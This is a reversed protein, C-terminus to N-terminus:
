GSLITDILNLTESKEQHILDLTDLGKDTLEYTRRGEEHSGKILGQREMAYMLAYVTGASTLLRYKRQVTNIFDYGSLTGTKKLESLVIVDLFDKVIRQEM